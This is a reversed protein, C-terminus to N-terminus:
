DCFDCVGSAPLAMHCTPCIRAAPPTVTKRVKPPAAKRARKPSAVPQEQEVVDFGMLQLTRAADDEGDAFLEPGAARGTAFQYAAGLLAPADYEQGGQWLMYGRARGFGHRRLFERSGLRDCEAIAALVHSRDVVDWDPM